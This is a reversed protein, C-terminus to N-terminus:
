GLPIEVVAAMKMLCEEIQGSIEDVMRATIEENKDQELSKLLDKRVNGSILGLRSKFASESILKRVPSLVKM